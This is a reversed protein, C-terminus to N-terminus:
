KSSNIQWRIAAAISDPQPITSCLTHTLMRIHQDILLCRLVCLRFLVGLSLASNSLFRWAFCFIKNEFGARVLRIPSIITHRSESLNYFLAHLISDPDVVASLTM